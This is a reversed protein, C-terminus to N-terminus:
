YKVKPPNYNVSVYDDKFVELRDEPAQTFEMNKINELTDKLQSTIKNTDIGVTDKIKKTAADINEQAKESTSQTERSPTPFNKSSQFKSWLKKSNKRSALSKPRSRM